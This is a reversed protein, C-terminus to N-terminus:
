TLTRDCRLYQLLTLRNSCVEPSATAVNMGTRCTRPVLKNEDHVPLGVHAASLVPVPESLRRIINRAPLAISAATALITAALRLGYAGMYSALPGLPTGTM